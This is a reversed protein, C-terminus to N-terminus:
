EDSPKKASEPLVRAYGNTHRSACEAKFYRCVKWENTAAFTGNFGIELLFDKMDPRLDMNDLPLRALFEYGDGNELPACTADADRDILITRDPNRRSIEMSRCDRTPALACHTLGKRWDLTPKPAIFLEVGSGNWPIKNPNVELDFVRAQLFLATGALALRWKAAIKGSDVQSELRATRWETKELISPLIAKSPGHETWPIRLSPRKRLIFILLPHPTEGDPITELTYDDPEGFTDIALVWEAEDGPKLEAFTVEDAERLKAVSEPRIVLRIRGSAPESGCNRVWFRAQNDNLFKLGSELLETPPPPVDGPGPWEVPRTESPAPLAAIPKFGLTLAPSDTRLTFDGSEPDTFLPDAIRSGLFQGRAQGEALTVGDGFDVVSDEQWFLTDRVLCHRTKWGAAGDGFRASATAHCINREFVCIRNGLGTDGLKIPSEKLLAFINDRILNGRGKAALGGHVHHVVNNEVRLDSSGEDLYLGRGGYHHCGVHHVHNHRIAGGPHRGLMYIGGNDSLLGEWNIHHIHNGEIRNDVTATPAFSWTWGCSVGTYRMDYIHNDLVRNGGANGIWVGIAGSYILGGDHISCRRITTASPKGHAAATQGGAGLKTSPQPLRWEHDVRVGGAGLDTIECDDLYNGASGWGIQVGYQSVHAVRCGYLVCNEALNFCVAGPVDFAAQVSFHYWEPPQWEAHEFGINEFRVNSVLREEDGALRLITELRPAVIETTELTENELPLYHIKGSTRDHYWEGPDTLAEFVNEVRYRALEQTEDRLTAARGLGPVAFRVENAAADIKKIRHHISFWWAFIRLEVDELNRWDASLDGPNFNARDLSELLEGPQNAFHYYGKKPLSARYRRRGNVFLQSFRWDNEISEPLDTTWRRRANLNEERWNTIELGGSLVPTEGLAAAYVVPNQPTGSDEPTLEFTEPLRYVGGRLVVKYSDNSKERRAQRIAERARAVTAFPGSSGNAEPSMGNASDDGNPAVHFITQNM